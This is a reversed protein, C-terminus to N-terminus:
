CFWSLWCFLVMMLPSMWGWTLKNWFNAQVDPVLGSDEAPVPPVEGWWFPNLRKTWTKKMQQREEGGDSIDDIDHKEHAETSTSQQSPTQSTWNEM